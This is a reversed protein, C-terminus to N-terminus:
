LLNQTLFKEMTYTVYLRGHHVQFLFPDKTFYWIIDEKSHFNMVAARRVIIQIRNIGKMNAPNVEFSKKEINFVTGRPQVEIYNHDINIPKVIRSKSNSMLAIINSVQGAIVDAVEPNGLIIHIFDSVSSCFVYTFKAEKPKRYVCGDYMAM